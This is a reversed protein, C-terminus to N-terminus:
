LKQDEIDLMKLVIYFADIQGKYQNNLAFFSSSLETIRKSEECDKLRRTIKDRLKQNYRTLIEEKTRM